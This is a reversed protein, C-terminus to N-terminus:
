FYLFKNLLNVSEILLKKQSNIKDMLSNNTNTLDEIQKELENIKFDKDKCEAIKLNLKKEDLKQKETLEIIEKKYNEM